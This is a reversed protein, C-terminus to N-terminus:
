ALSPFKYLCVLYSFLLNISFVTDDVDIICTSGGLSCETFRLFANINYSELQTESLGLKTHARTQDAM